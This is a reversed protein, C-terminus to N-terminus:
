KIQIKLLFTRASKKTVSICEKAEQVQTLTHLQSGSTGGTEYRMLIDYDAKGNTVDVDQNKEKANQLVEEFVM